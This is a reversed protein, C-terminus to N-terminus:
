LWVERMFREQDALLADDYFFKSLVIASVERSMFDPYRVSQYDRLATGNDSLEGLRTKWSEIVVASAWFLAEEQAEDRPTACQYLALTLRSRAARAIINVMRLPGMNRTIYVMMAVCVVLEISPEGIETSPVVNLLNWTAQWNSTLGELEPQKGAAYDEAAEKYLQCSNATIQALDLTREGILERMALADLGIPLDSSIALSCWSSTPSVCYSPSPANGAYFDEELVDIKNHAM